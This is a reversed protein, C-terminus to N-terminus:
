LCQRFKEVLETGGILEIEKVIKKQLKLENHRPIMIFPPVNPPLTNRYMIPIDYKDHQGHRKNNRTFGLRMLARICQLRNFNWEGM